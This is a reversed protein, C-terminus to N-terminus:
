NMVFPEGKSKHLRPCASGNEKLHKKLNDLLDKKINHLTMFSTKCVTRHDYKYDYTMQQRKEVKRKKNAHSTEDPPRQCVVMKGMLLFDREIKELESLSLIYSYVERVEFQELCKKTCCNNGDFREKLNTYIPCDDPRVLESERQSQQRSTSSGASASTGPTVGHEPQFLEINGVNDLEPDVDSQDEGEEDISDGESGSEDGFFDDSLVKELVEDLGIWKKRRSAAM